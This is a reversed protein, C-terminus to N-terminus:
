SKQRLQVERVTHVAPGMRVSCDAEPIDIDQEPIDGLAEWTHLAVVMQAALQRESGSVLEEAWELALLGDSWTDPVPSETNGSTDLTHHWWVSM